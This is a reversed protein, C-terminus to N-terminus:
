YRDEQIPLRGSAFPDADQAVKDARFATKDRQSAAVKHNHSIEVESSGAKRNATDQPSAM